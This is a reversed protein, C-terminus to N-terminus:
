KLIQRVQEATNANSFILPAFSTYSFMESIRCIETILRKKLPLRNICGAHFFPTNAEPKTELGNPKCAPPYHRRSPSFIPFFLPFLGIQITLFEKLGM